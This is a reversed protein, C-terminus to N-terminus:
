LKGQKRWHSAVDQIVKLSEEDIRRSLTQEQNESLESPHTDIIIQIKKDQDLRSSVEGSIGPFYASRREVLLYLLMDGIQRFGYEEPNLELLREYPLEQIAEFLKDAQLVEGSAEQPPPKGLREAAQQEAPNPQFSEAEGRQNSTGRSLPRQVRLPNELVVSHREQERRSHEFLEHSPIAPQQRPEEPTRAGRRFGGREQLDSIHQEMGVSHLPKSPTPADGGNGIKETLKHQSAKGAHEGGRAECWGCNRGTVPLFHSCCLLYAHPFAVDPTTGCHFVSQLAWILAGATGLGV